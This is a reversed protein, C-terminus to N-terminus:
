EGRAKRLALQRQCDPAHGSARDRECWPCYGGCYSCGVWEVAGLAALLVDRQEVVEGKLQLVVARPEGPDITVWRGRRRYQVRCEIEIASSM